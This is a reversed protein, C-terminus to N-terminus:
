RSRIWTSLWIIWLKRLLCSKRSEQLYLAELYGYMKNGMLTLITLVKKEELVNNVEFFMEMREVYHKWDSGPVFEEVRGIHSSNVIVTQQATENTPEEEGSM